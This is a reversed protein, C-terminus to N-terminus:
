VTPPSCCSIIECEDTGINRFRHPLRSNFYYADGPGLTHIQGGVTLELQGCIIVGGEESEHHLMEKGSDAGPKIREHLLQM